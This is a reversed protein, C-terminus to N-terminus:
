ISLASHTSVGIPSGGTATGVPMLGGIGAGLNPASTGRLDIGYGPAGHESLDLGAIEEEASVRLWGAAKLGSFLIFSAAAVFAVIALGGVLQDVLLGAGGGAFLGTNGGGTSNTTAFLGTAILGWFGGIGHVSFAGVPDDVGAREIALVALVVIAGAIAGTALTGFANMDGIGSCIAVLGALMGNGAMSVDPKKLVIWSVTMAAVGGSAAAFATFVALIPVALDAALESGPNFGFWGIFLLMVGLIAMPISHGPIAQPKGEKSFKGIRPGMVVTGILAAVGGVMHVLGSGAFDVFGRESLWGGGWGWSVVMPYIFATIAVSYVLYAKFQTRGAVAGSVITAAAAAFAAQFLFDVSPILGEVDQSMFNEIGFGNSGLWGNFEGPYAIGFGVAAFVLIGVCADMMNKMMINASNKAQTLGSEVLAFGAQMLLVLVAAFFIFINDLVIQTDM